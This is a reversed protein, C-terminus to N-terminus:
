AFSGVLKEAAQATSVWSDPIFLADSGEQKAIAKKESVADALADEAVAVRREEGQHLAVQEAAAKKDAQNSEQAFAAELSALSLSTIVIGSHYGRESAGTEGRQNKLLTPQVIELSFNTGSWKELEVVLSNKKKFERLTTDAEEGAARVKKHKSNKGAQIATDADKIVLILRDFGNDKLYARYEDMLAKQEPTQLKHNQFDRVLDEVRQYGAESLQDTHSLDFGDRLDRFKQSNEIIQIGKNLTVLGTAAKQQQVTTADDASGAIADASASEMGVLLDDNLVDTRNDEIKVDSSAPTNSAVAVTMSQPPIPAVVAM